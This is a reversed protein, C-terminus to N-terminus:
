CLTRYAHTCCPKCLSLRVSPPRTSCHSLAWLGGIMQWMGHQGHLLHPTPVCAALGSTTQQQQQQQQQQRTSSSSSSGSRNHAAAGMV